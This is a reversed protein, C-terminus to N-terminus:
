ARTLVGQSGARSVPSPPKPNDPYRSCIFLYLKRSIDYNYNFRNWNFEPDFQLVEEEDKSQIVYKNHFVGKAKFFLNKYILEGLLQGNETLHFPREIPRDQRWKIQKKFTLGEFQNACHWM